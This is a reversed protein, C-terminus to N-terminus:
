ALRTEQLRRRRQAAPRAVIAAANDLVGSAWRVEGEARHIEADLADVQFGEVSTRRLSRLQRLAAQRSALTARAVVEFRDPAAIRAVALRVVLDEAGDVEGLWREAAARGRATLQLLQRDPRRDQRQRTAIVLGDRELRGLTLYVQSARTQWLPGLEAELTAQLQYGHAPGALLLGLLAGPLAM